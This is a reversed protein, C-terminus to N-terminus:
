LAAVAARVGAFTRAALDIYDRDGNLYRIEVENAGRHKIHLRGDAVDFYLQDILGLLTYARGNAIGRGGLAASSINGSGYRTVELGAFDAWNNLYIRDMGNKQWRRGGLALLAEVTLAVSKAKRAKRRAGIEIRRALSAADIVWKGAVKAAAVAGIRCWTRITAVTVKAQTAAATTNM